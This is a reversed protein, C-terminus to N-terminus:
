FAGIATLCRKKYKVAGKHNWVTHTQKIRMQMTQRHTHISVLKARSGDSSLSERPAKQLLVYWLFSSTVACTTLIQTPKKRKEKENKVIKRDQERM